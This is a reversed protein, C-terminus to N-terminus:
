TGFYSFHMYDHTSGWADGGWTWGHKEFARVVDGYPTISYPNEYPKWFSGVTAGSSYVCYNQDANIDIATGLAHESLRGSATNRYSYAYADSIPFKDNGQFIEEFIQWLDDALAHNVTISATSPYKKGNKMRWVNVKITTMAADAEEKSSISYASEASYLYQAPAYRATFEAKGGGIGDAYVNVTYTNNTYAKFDFSNAYATYYEPDKAGVQTRRDAIIEVLYENVPLKNWELHVDSNNDTLCVAVNLCDTYVPVPDGYIGDYEPIIYYLKASSLKQAPVTLTGNKTKGLSIFSGSQAELAYISCDDNYACSINFGASPVISDAAPSSVTPSQNLPLEAVWATLSAAEQLTVTDLPLFCGNSNPTFVSKATLAGVASHAWTGILSIDSYSYVSSYDADKSVTGILVGYNFLIQALEQRNLTDYPKLNGSEDGSIIGLEAAGYAGSGTVKKDTKLSYARVMMDCLDNRTAPAKPNKIVTNKTMVGMSRANHMASVAWEDPSLLVGSATDYDYGYDWFYYDALVTNASLISVCMIAAFIKKLFTM